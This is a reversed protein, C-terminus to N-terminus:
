DFRGIRKMAILRTFYLDAIEKNVSVQHWENGGKPALKSKHREIIRVDNATSLFFCFDRKNIRRSTLSVNGKNAGDYSSIKRALKSKAKM